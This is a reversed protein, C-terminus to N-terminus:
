SRIISLIEGYTAAEYTANYKEREEPFKGDHAFLISDIGANAAGKIDSTLSDGIMLYKKRDNDGIAHMVHDFFKIDPKNFGINDSVFIYDAFRGIGSANIRGNATYSTGNTVIAIEIGPIERLKVLFDEAGPLFIGYSALAKMYLENINGTGAPLEIGAKEFTRRWRLDFLEPKTIERRELAKWCALNEETYIERLSPSFSAPIDLDSCVSLLARRESEKFDFVTEDLDLLIHAYRSM